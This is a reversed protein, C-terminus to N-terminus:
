RRANNLRHVASTELGVEVEAQAFASTKKKCEFCEACNVIEIRLMSDKGSETIFCQAPSLSFLIARFKYNAPNRHAMKMM